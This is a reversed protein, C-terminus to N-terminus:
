VDSSRLSGLLQQQQLLGAEQQACPLRSPRATSTLCSHGQSLLRAPCHLPMDNSGLHPAWPTMCCEPM